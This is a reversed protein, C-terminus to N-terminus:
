ARSRSDIWDRLIIAAAIKDVKGKLDRVGHGTSLLHREAEVTTLREDIFVTPLGTASACLTAFARVKKAGNHARGDMHIPLGFVLVTAERDDAIAAIRAVAAPRDRGDVVELPTVTIGLGDCTAM